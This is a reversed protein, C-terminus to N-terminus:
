PGGETDQSGTAEQGDPDSSADPVRIDLIQSINLPIEGVYLVPSGGELNIRSVQGTIQTEVPLIQDSMNVATIEFGYVGPEQMIGAEDRGDWEFDQQGAELVDLSIKRIPYGDPDTIIATCNAAEDLTFRGMSTKGQELSIMDGAAVIEKGIFDLAQFYANQDQSSQLSELNQNVQFLQELSSFQALQASFETSEMPNLPDQHSLQALFMKLFDERGLKDAAKEAYLNDEAYSPIGTIGEM